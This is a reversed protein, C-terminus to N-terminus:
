RRNLAGTSRACHGRAIQLHSRYRKRPQYLALCRFALEARRRDQIRSLLISEAWVTITWNETSPIDQLARM